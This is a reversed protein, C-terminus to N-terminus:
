VWCDEYDDLVKGQNKSCGDGQRANRKEGASAGMYPVNHSSLLHGRRSWPLHNPVARLTGSECQQLFPAAENWNYGKNWNYGCGINVRRERWLPVESM